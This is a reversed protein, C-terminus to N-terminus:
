FGILYRFTRILKLGWQKCRQLFSVQCRVRLVGRSELLFLHQLQPCHELSRDLSLAPMLRKPQSLRKPVPFRSGMPTAKTRMAPNKQPM